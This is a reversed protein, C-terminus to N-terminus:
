MGEFFAIKDGERLTVIAKKRDPRKGVFRGMRKEKGKVIMTRVDLVHVKFMAEVAHKIEIKNAEKAVIFSYKNDAMQGMSKETVM